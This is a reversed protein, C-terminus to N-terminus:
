NPDRVTLYDQQAGELSAMLVALAAKSQLVALKGTYFGLAKGPAICGLLEDMLNAAHILIRDRGPVHVLYAPYGGTHYTDLTVEYLGAPIRPHEGTSTREMSFLTTDDALTFQGITGQTTELMRQLVLPM